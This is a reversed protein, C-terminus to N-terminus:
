TNHVTSAALAEAEVLEDRHDVARRIRYLPKGILGAGRGFIRCIVAVVFNGRQLSVIQTCEPSPCVYLYLAVWFHLFAQAEIDEVEQLGCAPVASCAYGRFTEGAFAVLAVIEPVGFYIGQRKKVIFSRSYRPREHAVAYSDKLLSTRTSPFKRQRSYKEGPSGDVAFFRAGVIRCTGGLEMDIRINGICEHTIQFRCALPVDEQFSSSFEQELRRAQPHAESKEIRALLFFEADGADCPRVLVGGEHVVVRIGVEHGFEVQPM